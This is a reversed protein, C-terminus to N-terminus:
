QAMSWEDKLNNIIEEETYCEDWERVYYPFQKNDMADYISLGYKESMERNKKRYKGNLIDLCEGLKELVDEEIDTLGPQNLMERYLESIKELLKQEM